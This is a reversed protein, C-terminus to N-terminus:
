PTQVATDYIGDGDWDWEYRIIKGMTDISASADLHIKHLAEDVVQFTFNAQILDKHEIGITQSTKDTLGDNDTVRLTVQYTGAEMFSHETVPNTNEKDWTGDSNWDWEYKVIQGDPDTSASADFRIRDGAKPKVLLRAGELSFGEWTFSATPSIPPLYPTKVITDTQGKDDAVMLVTRCAFRHSFTHTTAPDSSVHDWSGDSDFDWRYSVIHGDPDHSTSADFRVENGSVLEWTFDAIPSQNVYGYALWEVINLALREADLDDIWDNMMFLNAGSVVIRGAGYGMAALVAFPGNEESTQREKDGWDDSGYRDFWSDPDSEALVFAHDLEDLYTGHFYYASIGKTIRHDHMTRIQVVHTM